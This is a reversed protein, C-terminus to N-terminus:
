QFNIAQYLADLAGLDGKFIKLMSITMLQPKGQSLVASPSFASRSKWLNINAPFRSQVQKAAELLFDQCRNKVNAEVTNDLKADGLAVTFLIGFNVACLPLHSSPDCLNVKLLKGDSLPIRESLSVRSILTHFFPQLCDLMKFANGGSELQFLNNISAFEQLIPTLFQVTHCICNILRLDEHRQLLHIYVSNEKRVMISCSDTGIGICKSFDLGVSTLFQILATAIAEATESELIVLGLFTSVIRNLSSSFYCLVICLQKVAAIDTSDNIVLSYQSEGIDKILDSFMCPAIHNNILATCKTHHLSVARELASGVLEGLHNVSSVRSHWAIYCALKLEVQHMMISPKLVMFGVDTLCMSSFPTANRKPKDTGAHQVLDTHHARIVGKRKGMGKQIKGYKAWKIPSM